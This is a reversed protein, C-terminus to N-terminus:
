QTILKGFNLSNLSQEQDAKDTSINLFMLSISDGELYKQLVRTLTSSRFWAQEGNKIARMVKNLETLSKNIQKAEDFRAGTVWSDKQRESGALDVLVLSSMRM